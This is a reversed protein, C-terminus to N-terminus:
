KRAIRIMMSILQRYNEFVQADTQEIAAGVEHTLVDMVAGATSADLAAGAEQVVAVLIAVSDTIEAASGGEAVVVSLMMAQAVVVDAASGSETVVAVLALQADVLDFAAGAEAISEQQGTTVDTLDLAAGAEAIVEPPYIALSDVIDVALGAEVMAVGFQGGADVADVASGQESVVVVALAGESVVDVAAGAESVVLTPFDASSDSADLAAGTEAVAKDLILALTTADVASGAEVVAEPPYSAGSNTTAAASGFEGVVETFAGADGVTDGAAGAESVASPYTAHSGVVDAAAGAEARVSTLTAHTSVTDAAAGSEGIVVNYAVGARETIGYTGTSIPSGSGPGPTLQYNMLDAARLADSNVTDTFWGTLGAGITVLQAGAAGNVRTTLTSPGTATNTFVNIRLRSVALNFGHAIQALADTAFGVTGSQGYPCLYAPVSAPWSTGSLAGAVGFLDVLSGTTPTFGAAFYNVVLPGGAAGATVMLNFLDGVALADTNTTDQFVGTLGAGITLAQNGNAGNKRFNVTSPGTTPNTNIGTALGLTTGAAGACVQAAAAGTETASSTCQAVFRTYAAPPRFNAGFTTQVGGYITAHASAGQILLQLRQVNPSGSPAAGWQGDLQDGSAFVDTHASDTPVADSINQNGAAGNKRLALTWTAAVAGQAATLGSFTAAFPLPYGFPPITGGSAILGSGALGMVNGAAPIVGAPPAGLGILAIGM